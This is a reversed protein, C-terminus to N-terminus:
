RGERRERDEEGHTKVRMGDERWKERGRRESGNEEMKKGGM